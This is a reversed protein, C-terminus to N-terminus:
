RLRELEHAAAPVPRLILFTRLHLGKHPLGEEHPYSYTKEWLGSVELLTCTCYLDCGRRAQIDFHGNQSSAGEKAHTYEVRWSALENNVFNCSWFTTTM